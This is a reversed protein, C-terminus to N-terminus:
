WDADVFEPDEDIWGEITTLHPLDHRSINKDSDTSVMLENLILPGVESGDSYITIPEWPEDTYNWPEDFIYKFEWEWLHEWVAKLLDQLTPYSSMGCHLENGDEKSAYVWVYPKSSIGFKEPKFGWNLFSFSEVM